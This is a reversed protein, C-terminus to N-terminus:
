KEGSGVIIGGGQSGEAGEEGERDRLVHRFSADFIDKMGVQVPIGGPSSGPRSGASGAHMRGRRRHVKNPSYWVDPSRYMAPASFSGSIGGNGSILGASEETGPTDLPVRGGVGMITSDSEARALIMSASSSRRGAPTGASSGTSVQGPTNVDGLPGHWGGSPNQYMPMPKPHVTELPKRVYPSDDNRLREIVEALALSRVGVDAYLGGASCLRSVLHALGIRVDQLDDSLPTLYRMFHEEFFAIDIGKQLFAEVCSMFTRRRKFAPSNGLEHVLDLLAQGLPPDVKVVDYCEPVQLSPPIVTLRSRRLGLALSAHSVKQIAAQRVAEYTDFLFCHLLQISGTAWDLGVPQAGFLAAAQGALLERHRWNKYSGAEWEKSLMNVLELATDLPLSGAFDAVHTVIREQLEDTGHLFEYFPGLLDTATIDSGVIKAVEHMSAALSRTVRPHNINCLALYTQRIQFWGKRGLALCVAPFNFASIAARDLDDFERRYQSYVHPDQEGPVATTFSTVEEHESAQSLFVELLDVPTGEPDDQFLHIIEGLIELSTYQVLDGSYVLNTYAEVVYDRKM